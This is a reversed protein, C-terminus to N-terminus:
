GINRQSFLKLFHEKRQHLSLITGIKLRLQKLSIKLHIKMLLLKREQITCGNMARQTTLHWHTNVLYTVPNNSIGVLADTIKKQSVAIGANVMLKGGPGTFVAITGGSGERLHVNGRLASVVVPDKAAANKISVVPSTQAFLRKPALMIGAAIAAILRIFYGCSM